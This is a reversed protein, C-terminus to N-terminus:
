KCDGVKKGITKEWRSIIDKITFTFFDCGYELKMEEQIRGLCHELNLIDELCLNIDCNYKKNLDLYVREETM